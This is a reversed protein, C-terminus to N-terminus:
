SDRCEAIDNNSQGDHTIVVISRVVRMVELVGVVRDAGPSGGRHVRSM